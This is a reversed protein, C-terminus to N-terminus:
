KHLHRQVDTNKKKLLSRSLLDLDLMQLVIGADVVKGDLKHDWVEAPPPEVSSSHITLKSSPYVMCLNQFASFSYKSLKEEPNASITDHYMEM